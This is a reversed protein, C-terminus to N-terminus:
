FDLSACRISQIAYALANNAEESYDTPVLITEM